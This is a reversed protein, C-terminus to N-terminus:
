LIYAEIFRKIKDQKLCFAGTSKMNTVKYYSNLFDAAERSAYSNHKEIWWSISKLNDDILQKPNLGEM